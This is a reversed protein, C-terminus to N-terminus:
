FCRQKSGENGLLLGIHQQICSTNIVHSKKQQEFDYKKM